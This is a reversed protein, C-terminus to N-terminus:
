LVLQHSLERPCGIIGLQLSFKREKQDMISQSQHLKVKTCIRYFDSHSQSVMWGKYSHKIEGWTIGSDHMRCFPMLCGWTTVRFRSSYVGLSTFASSGPCMVYVCPSTQGQNWEASARGSHLTSVLFVCVERGKTSHRDTRM